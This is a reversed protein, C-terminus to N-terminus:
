YKRFYDFKKSSQFIKQVSIKLFPFKPFLFTTGLQARHACCFVRLVIELWILIKWFLRVKKFKSINKSCVNEFIHIEFFLSNYQTTSPSCLLLSELRNGTLNINELIISSKQVKFYKKSCVNEFILIEFFSFNHQTKSLSCLFPSKLCKKSIWTKSLTQKFLAELNFLTIIKSFILRLRFQNLLRKNHEGLVVWCLKGKESIGM